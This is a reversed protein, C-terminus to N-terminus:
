GFLALADHLNLVDDPRRPEEESGRRGVRDVTDSLNAAMRNGLHCVCKPPAALALLCLATIPTRASVAAIM